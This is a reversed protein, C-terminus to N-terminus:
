RGGGNKFYKFFDSDPSLVMTTQGDDFAGEYAQLSRYFAAFRADKGFSSAFIKASEADGAGRTAFAQATANALTITVQKDADAVVELRNQEGIARIQAAQQQLNSRMRRYVAQQNATPLDARKIRLDVVEIGLHSRAARRRIDGLANAMVEARQASIIQSATAAGLVQRLSSNILPQLRDAAVAEDRLTRYFAVPNSIRYRIFADVVLRQQDASIIEEQPAELAQNRKDLVVLNEILPIKLKLGPDYAGPPNIVRVPEGLKVVIVQQRQDVIFLSNFAIILVVLGGGIWMWARRSM